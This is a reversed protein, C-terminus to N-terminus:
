VQSKLQPDDDVEHDNLAVLGGLRGEGSEVSVRKGRVKRFMNIKKYYQHKRNRTVKVMSRGNKKKKLVVQGGVDIPGDLSLGEYLWNDHLGSEDSVSLPHLNFVGDSNVEFIVYNEPKEYTWDRWEYDYTNESDYFTVVGSLIDLHALCWHQDTENIPIFVQDVDSWPIGYKDDNSYFLPMCLMKEEELRLRKEQQIRKEQKSRIRKEEELYLKLEDDVLYEHAIDKISDHPDVLDQFLINLSEVFDCRLRSLDENFQLRQIITELKFVRVNLERIVRDTLRRTKL